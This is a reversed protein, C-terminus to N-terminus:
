IQQEIINIWKEIITDRDLLNRISMANRQLKLKFSDDTIVRQLANAMADTDNCPVIIGNENNRILERAAGSPFDTTICALGMAMAEILANPMGEFNSPLIFIEYDKLCDVVRKVQGEFFVQGELKLEKVLKEQEARLPGQGFIHLSYGNSKIKEFARIGMEQNKDPVMRGVMAIKKTRTSAIAPLDDMIPNYIVCSKSQVNKPFQKLITNTQFVCKECKNILWRVLTKDYRLQSVDIRLSFVFKVNSIRSAVFYQTMAGFMIMADIKLRHFQYAIKLIQCPKSGTFIYLPYKINDRNIAENSSFVFVDYGRKFFEDMMTLLVREGGGYIGHHLYFAISKM